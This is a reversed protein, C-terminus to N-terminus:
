REMEMPWVMPGPVPVPGAVGPSRWEGRRSQHRTDGFVNGLGYGCRGFDRVVVLRRLVPVFSSGCRVLRHADLRSAEIWRSRMADLEPCRRPVSVRGSATSAGM